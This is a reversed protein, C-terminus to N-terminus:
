HPRENKSDRLKKIKAQAGTGIIPEGKMKFPAWCREGGGGGMLFSSSLSKLEAELM